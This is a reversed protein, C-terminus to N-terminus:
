AERVARAGALVRGEDTLLLPRRLLRPEVLILQLMEDDTIAEPDRGLKKFSPSNFAFLNRVGGARQALDRLEGADLPV